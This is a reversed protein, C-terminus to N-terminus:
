THIHSESILDLHSCPLCFCVFLCVFGSLCVHRAYLCLYVSQFLRTCDSLYRAFYLVSLCMYVPLCVISFCLHACSIFRIGLIALDCTCWTWPFCPRYIICLCWRFRCLCRYSRILCRPLCPRWVALLHTLSSLELTVFLWLVVCSAFLIQRPKITKSPSWLVWLLLWTCLPWPSSM